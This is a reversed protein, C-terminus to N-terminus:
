KNKFSVSLMILPLAPPPPSVADLATELGQTQLGDACLGVCPEFERARLGHGSGFDSAWCVSGGLCGQARIKLSLIM